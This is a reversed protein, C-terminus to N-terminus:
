AAGGVREAMVRAVYAALDRKRPHTRNPDFGLAGGHIARAVKVIDVYTMFSLREAYDAADAAILLRPATTSRTTYGTLASGPQTSRTTYGILASGPQTSRALYGPQHYACFHSNAFAIVCCGRYLCFQAKPMARMLAAKRAVNPTPATAQLKM